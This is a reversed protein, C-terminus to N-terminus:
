RASEPGALTVTSDVTCAAAISGLLGARYGSETRAAATARQASEGLAAVVQAVDAAGAAAPTTTEDTSTAVTTVRAIETTLVRAHAQRRDAVQQLLDALPVTAGAAAAAALDADGGGARGARRTGAISSIPL